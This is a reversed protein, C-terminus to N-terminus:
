SRRIELVVLIVPYSKGDLGGTKRHADNSERPTDKVRYSFTLSDGAHCRDVAGHFGFYDHSEVSNIRAICHSSMLLVKTILARTAAVTRGKRNKYTSLWIAVPMFYSDSIRSSLSGMTEQSILFRGKGLFQTKTTYEHQLWTLTRGRGSRITIISRGNALSSTAMTEAKLGLDEFSPTRSSWPEQLTLLRQVLESEQTTGRSGTM